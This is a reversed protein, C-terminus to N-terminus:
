RLSARKLTAYKKECKLRQRPMLMCYVSWLNVEKIERYTVGYSEPVLCTLAPCDTIADRLKKLERDIGNKGLAPDFAKPDLFIDIDESFRNILNWGKSLSTGGKFIITQGAAAALARLAETVYYDKEIMAARLGLGSFHAEAALIAQDFDPHEFLYM